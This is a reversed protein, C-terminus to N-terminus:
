AIASETAPDFFHLRRADVALKVRDGPRVGSRPELAACVTAGGAAVLPASELVEGGTAAVVGASRAPPADVSFYALLTAGPAEVRDITATLPAGGNASEVDEPRVGVILERDLWAELGRERALLQPLPLKLGGVAVALGDGARVITGHALNM